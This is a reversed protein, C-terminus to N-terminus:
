LLDQFDTPKYSPLAPTVPAPPLPPTTPLAALVNAMVYIAKRVGHQELRRGEAGYRDATRFLHVFVIREHDTWRPDDPHIDSFNM